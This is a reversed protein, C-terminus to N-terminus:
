ATVEGLPRPATEPGTELPHRGLFELTLAVFEEPRELQPFHGCPDFIHLEAHPLHAQAVRAHKVPLIQDQAGWVTLTPM